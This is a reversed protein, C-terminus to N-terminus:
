RPAYLRVLLGHVRVEMKRRKARVKGPGHIFSHVLMVEAIKANDFM